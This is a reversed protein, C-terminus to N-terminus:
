LGGKWSREGAEIAFPLVNEPPPLPCIAFTSFACPPNIAKNFDLVITDGVIDEGFLFRCAPYTTKGSTADRIVFQPADPAGHTPLLDYTAGAHEFRAHHSITVETPAGIVTDVTTHVPTELPLWKAVIRWAKDAPFSEVGHFNGREAAEPDRIRLAPRGALMVIEALFAGIRFRSPGKRGVQIALPPTSGDAPQFRFGAADNSITGAHDPGRPLVADNDAAAGVSVPGDDLWWLGLLNLWGDEATLRAIREHRWAALAQSYDERHDM